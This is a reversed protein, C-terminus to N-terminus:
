GRGEHTLPADLGKESETRLEPRSQDLVANPLADTGLVPWSVPTARVHFM